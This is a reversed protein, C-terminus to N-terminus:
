PKSTDAEDDGKSAYGHYSLMRQFKHRLRDEICQIEPLIKLPRPQISERFDITAGPELDLFGLIRAIERDPDACLDEYRTTVFDSEALADIHDLFYDAHKLTRRVILKRALQIRSDAGTAWRMFGTVARSKQMRAYTASYMQNLPNGEAWNRRVMRLQSSLVEIPKRHIFIFKAQPVLRKVTMFNGYDFPNKLLLPQGPASVMQIKRCMEDFIPWNKKTLCFRRSRPQLIFCYEEPYDADFAMNDVLRTQLNLSALRRNLEERAAAGRGRAHDALLEEYCMTHYATQVNFSDTMGLLRYLLTTGSRHEGLVIIPTYDVDRLANLRDRDPGPDTCHRFINNMM